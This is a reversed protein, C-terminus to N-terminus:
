ESSGFLFSARSVRIPFAPPRSSRDGGTCQDQSTGRQRAARVLVPLLLIGPAHSEISFFRVHLLRREESSHMRSVRSGRQGADLRPRERQAYRGTAAVFGPSRRKPVISLDVSMAGTTGSDPFILVKRVSAVNSDQIRLFWARSRSTHSRM